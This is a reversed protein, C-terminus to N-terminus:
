LLTSSSVVMQSDATGEAKNEKAKYMALDAREILQEASEALDLGQEVHSPFAAVGISFSRYIPQSGPKLAFSEEMAMAIRSAFYRAGGAGTGPLLFAFEDGGLRALIDTRRSVVSTLREAVLKLFRDGVLHGFQDNIGKFDDGDIVLLSLPKKSRIARAIEHSLTAKFFRDNYLGTKPDRIGDERIKRLELLCARRAEEDIDGYLLLHELPTLGERQEKEELGALLDTLESRLDLSGEM